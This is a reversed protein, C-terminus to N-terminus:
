SALSDLILKALSTNLTHGGKHSHVHALLPRGLLALDGLLDLAKHRVPEDKLRFPSRPAQNDFILTNTPNAGLALGAHHLSAADREFGFTRAPALERRYLDATPEGQWQQSDIAPHDFEITVLLSLREAPSATLTRDGNSLTLTRELRIPEIPKDLSFLGVKDIAEVFPFASGDLIPIEPGEVEALIDTVGLVSLASLLHEVVAIQKGSKTLRVGYDAACLHHLSAPIVTEGSLFRIGGSTAPKLTLHCPMGSHVGIGTFEIAGALTQRITTMRFRM